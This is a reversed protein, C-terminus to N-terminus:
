LISIGALKLVAGALIIAIVVWRLVDQVHVSALHMPGCNLYAPLAYVEEGILTEQAAALMVAQAPLDDSAALTFASRCDAAQLLLGVEPGLNGVLAHASVNEDSAAPIAGAMYAMPTVGALRARTLDYQDLVGGSRYAARLADQSLVALAGDGSTAIPPRDSVMAQRATHELTTLGVLTSAFNGSTLSARGLSLHLRQGSEVSHALAKALQQAAPLPRIPRLLRERRSLGFYLMLALCIVLILTALISQIM